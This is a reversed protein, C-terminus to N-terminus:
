NQNLLFNKEIEDLQKWAEVGEEQIKTVQEREIIAEELAVNLTEVMYDERAEKPLEMFHDMVFARVEAEAGNSVLAALQDLIDNQQPM